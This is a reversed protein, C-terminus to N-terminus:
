LRSRLLRCAWLCLLATALTILVFWPQTALSAGEAFARWLHVLTTLGFIAGSIIIYAKM